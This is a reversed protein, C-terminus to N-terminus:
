DLWKNELYLFACVAGCTLLVWIVWFVVTYITENQEMHAIVQEPTMDRFLASSDNITGNQLSTYITGTMPMPVVNYYYRDDSGVYIYNMRNDVGVSDLNLREAPLEISEYPFTRGQFIIEEVHRRDSWVHDWTYYVETETRKKGNSDTKTVTRTHRTYEEKNKEIYIFGGGIEDYTVSSNSSVDGYVLVNGFNTDMGYYFQDTNKIVTATRYSESKSVAGQLIADSVFIGIFIMVLVIIVSFLVERKKIRM